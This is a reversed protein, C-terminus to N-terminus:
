GGAMAVANLATMDNVYAYEGPKNVQGIIYFPRYASVAVSVRPQNLYGERLGTAIASGLENTSLGAAQVQGILPMAIFGSGDVQFEGSLDDEGFVTVRVKDGTGLRYVSSQPAASARVIVTEPQRQVAVAPAAAPAPPLPTTQQSPGPLPQPPGSAAKVAVASTGVRVQMAQQRNLEATANDQQAPAAVPANAQQQMPAPSHSVAYDPYLATNTREVRLPLAPDAASTRIPAANDQESSRLVDQQAQACVPAALALLALAAFVIGLRTM